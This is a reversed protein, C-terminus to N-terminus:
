ETSWNARRVPNQVSKADDTHFKQQQSASTGGQLVDRLLSSHPSVEAMRLSAM